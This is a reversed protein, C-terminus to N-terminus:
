HRMQSILLGVNSGLNNKLKEIDECFKKENKIATDIRRVLSDADYRKKKYGPVRNKLEKEAYRCKKTIKPNEYLKTYDLQDIDDFHMILWFEFCPNTVYLDFGNEQCVNFVHDYQESTFSESDRDVIFCIKDFGKAYSLKGYDMIRPIDLVLNKLQTEKELTNVVDHFFNEINVDNLAIKEELKVNLKDQCILQLMDWVTKAFCSDISTYKEERLFEMISNLLTEYSVQESNSEGLIYIIREVIKQLNSWTRESYGRVIPVLEILPNINIEDRLKAVSKFYAYETKEGEYVLFFKKRVEDSALVKTRQAFNRKERM